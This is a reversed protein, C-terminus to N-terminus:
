TQQEEEAKQTDIGSLLLLLYANPDADDEVVLNGSFRVYKKIALANM